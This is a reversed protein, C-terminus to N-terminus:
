VPLISPFPRGCCCSPLTFRCAVRFLGLFFFCFYRKEATADALAPAAPLHHISPKISPCSGYRAVSRRRSSLATNQRKREPHEQSATDKKKKKTHNTNPPTAEGSLLSTYMPQPSSGLYISISLSDMSPSLTFRRRAVVSRPRGLWDPQTSSM